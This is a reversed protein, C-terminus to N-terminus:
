IIVDQMEVVRLKTIHGLMWGMQKIAEVVEDFQQQKLNAEVILQNLEVVDKEGQIYLAQERVGLARASNNYNKMHRSEKRAKDIELWKVVARAEQARKAYFFQHHPIDRALKELREGEIDFIPEAQNIEEQWQEFYAPLEAKLDENTEGLAFLNITQPTM